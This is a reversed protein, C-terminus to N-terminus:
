ARRRGLYEILFVVLIVFLCGFLFWLGPHAFFDFGPIGGLAKETAPTPLPAYVPPAEGAGEPVSRMVAEDAARRMRIALLEIAGSGVVAVAIVLVYRKLAAIVEKRTTKVPAIVVLKRQPEYLKVPKMKRSYKTRAIRVLGADCLNELNYQVTTLPIGLQRAIESASHPASALVELISRATDSAIVQSIKKSNTDNLPLILLKEETADADDATENTRKPRNMWERNTRGPKLGM